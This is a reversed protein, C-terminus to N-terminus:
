KAKVKGQGFFGASILVKHVSCTAFFQMPVPLSAALVGLSHYGLCIARLDLGYAKTVTSLMMYIIIGYQPFTCLFIVEDFRGRFLWISRLALRARPPPRLSVCPSEPATCCGSPPRGYMPYFFRMVLYAAGFVAGDEPSVFIAYSWLSLLYVPAQEHLNGFARVAWHVHKDNANCEKSSPGLMMMTYYMWTFVSSVVIVGKFDENPGTPM